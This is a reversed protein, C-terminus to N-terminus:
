VSTNFVMLRGIGPTLTNSPLIRTTAAGLPPGNQTTVRWATAGNVGKGGLDCHIYVGGTRAQASPTGMANSGSIQVHIDPNALHNTALYSGLRNNNFDMCVDLGITIGAITVVPVGKGNDDKSRFSGNLAYVGDDDSKYLKKVIQGNLLIPCVNYTDKFITGKKYAITGAILLLEPVLASVAQLRRYIGHKNDRSVLGAGANFFYEPVVLMRTFNGGATRGMIKLQTDAILAVSEFNDGRATIGSAGLSTDSMTWCATYLNPM